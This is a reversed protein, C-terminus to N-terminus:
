FWSGPRAAGNSGKIAATVREDTEGHLVVSYSRCSQPLGGNFVIRVGQAALREFRDLDALRYFARGAPM